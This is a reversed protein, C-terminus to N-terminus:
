KDRKIINNFNNIHKKAEPDCRIIYFTNDQYKAANSFNYSGSMVLWNDIICYKNHELSYSKKIVINIGAQQLKTHASYFASAQSKDLAIVVDLKPKKSKINILSDVIAYNSIGYLSCQISVKSNKINSVIINEINDVPSFYSELSCGTSSYANSGLLLIFIFLFVKM